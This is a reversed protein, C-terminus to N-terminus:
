LYIIHFTTFYFSKLGAVLGSHLVSFRIWIYRSKPKWVVISPLDSALHLVTLLGIHAAEPVTLVAKSAPIEDNTGACVGPQCTM